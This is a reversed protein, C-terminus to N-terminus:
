QVENKTWRLNLERNAKTEDLRSVPTNFPANVIKEKDLDINKDIELMAEFEERALPRAFNSIMNIKVEPNAQRAARILPKVAQIWDKRFTTEGTGSLQIEPPKEKMIIKAVENLVLDEMEQDRGPENSDGAQSKSCYRCRLNCKSTIEVM